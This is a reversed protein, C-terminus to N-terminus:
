AGLHEHEAENFSPEPEEDLADLSDYTAKVEDPFTVTIAIPKSVEGSSLWGKMVIFDPASARIWGAGYMYKPDDLCINCGNSFEEASLPEESEISVAFIADITKSDEYSSMRFDAVEWTKFNDAEEPNSASFIYHDDGSCGTSFDFEVGAGGGALKVFDDLGTASAFTDLKPEENIKSNDDYAKTEPTAPKDSIAWLDGEQYLRWTKGEFYFSATSLVEDWAEWYQDGEPNSLLAILEESIGWASADFKEIFRKPIYIGEADSFLLKKDELEEDGFEATKVLEDISSATLERHSMKDGENHELKKIKLDENYQDHEADIRCLKTGELKFLAEKHVGKEEGDEYKVKVSNNYGFDTVKGKKGDSKNVITDGKKLDSYELPKDFFQDKNIKEQWRAESM